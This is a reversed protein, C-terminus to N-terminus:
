RTALDNIRIVAEVGNITLKVLYIGAANQLDTNAYDVLHNGKDLKQNDILTSVKRGLLDYVELKVNSQNDLNFSLKTSGSFPNPAAIFKFMSANASGVGIFSVEITDVNTKVCGNSVNTVTLTVFYQGAATFTHVPSDLASTNSPSSPDGFNWSYTQAAATVAAFKVNLANIGEATISANPEPKNTVVIVDTNSCGNANTVTVTYAGALSVNITKTTAGTSWLYTSGVNGADLTLVDSTCIDKDIGLNVSPLANFSVVITDKAICGFSNSVQVLYTGAVSVSITQTTAGTSWLYNLGPNGADLVVPTGICVTQNAGLNVIPKPNNTIVIADTMDCGAANTVKVTYTGGTSVQITQTTAGTSWLYTSGVNGADLTVLAGDCTTIDTGLNVSPTPYVKLYRSILSDCGTVLNKISATFVLTSDKDGLAATYRLSLGTMTVTGTPNLGGSTKVIANLVNWTVGIDSINFGTPPTLNYTMTDGVCAADPSLATGANFVGQFPTSQAVTAGTPRATPVVTVELRDSACGDTIYPLNLISNTVNNTIPVIQFDSLNNNDSNGGRSVSNTAAVTTINIGPGSWQTGITIPIGSVVIAAGTINTAPWNMFVADVVINNNDLIMAWGSFSPFAGPNWFMNNGWYNDTTGDTRYLIQGANMTAPLNWIIANVSNIVTYSDSIVVKYGATNITGGSLNQIELKDTGGLDLETIKLAGSSSGNAAAVYYKTTGNLPNTILTDNTALLNGGVAADYWRIVPASSSAVLTAGSGKCAAGIAVTPMAPSPSFIRSVRITDNEKIADTALETYVTYAITGTVNSNYYGINVTDRTGPALTKTYLKNLTASALGTLDAKINFNTQSAVGLNSIVIRISDSNIGCPNGSPYIFETLEIENTSPTYEDAGICPVGPRSQGDIDDAVASIAVGKQYLNAGQAHLDTLSIYSPNKNISNLNKATHVQLLAMTSLDGGSPMWGFVAQSSGSVYFNNYNFDTFATDSVSSFIAYAKSTDSANFLNNVISNNRVDMLRSGKGFHIGASTDAVTTARSIAGTLNISNNYIKVGGTEQLTIGVIATSNLNTSGTGTIGGIFNNAITINENPRGTIVEIGRGGFAGGGSSVKEIKNNIIKGNTFNSYVAIGWAQQAAINIINKITNNKIITNSNLEAAIGYLRLQEAVLDSGILNGEIITSDSLFGTEGSVFVGVSGRMITNNLIKNNNNSPGVSYPITAGGIHIPISNGATGALVICNKITNFSAGANSGLSILQIGVSGSTATTNEIRLYKDTGGNSGDITVRDTGNLRILGGVFAGSITRLTDGLPMIKLKYGSGGTEALQNLGNVGDEALNSTIVLTVDGALLNNNIFEFAGGAKTLSTYTKGTGVQYTGSIAAGIRYKNAAGITPFNSNILSVNTPDNALSILSNTNAAGNIDQAVVFYQIEDNVAMATTLKSYDITFSFPSSTNNALVYKWGNDASTNGVYANANTSKKYYLRPRNSASTDVGSADTITAFNTLTYNTTSITNLVPVFTIQPGSYDGRIEYAGIFPTSASRLNGALDHTVGAIPTGAAFLPSTLQPIMIKTGNLQPNSNITNADTGTATRFEGITSRALATAYGFNGGVSNVYVANYDSVVTTTPFPFAYYLGYKLGAGGRTISVANNKIESNATSTALYIGYTTGATAGTYDFSVTNHYIRTNSATAGYIGGMTGNGKFDYIANNVVYNENGATSAATIYIGYATSTNVVNPGFANHIKNDKVMNRTVSSMYVGYFTSTLKNVPRSFDNGIVQLSDPYIDYIGYVYYNSIRNGRIENGVASTPVSITGYVSIGAYGGNITNNIIKNYRFNGQTTYSGAGGSCMIGFYNTSSTSDDVFVKSNKITNYSSTTSIEFGTGYQSTGRGLSNVVFSDLTVYSAGNLRIGARNSTSTSTFQIVSGNGHIVVTDTKTAGKISNIVVQELYPGATPNVNVQVPGCIGNGNLEAALATLSAFNAGVGGVTVNGILGTKLNNIKATDNIANADSNNNPSSTWVKINYNNNAVVTFSGITLLTDTASGVSGIFNIPTQAVNNISWNVTVTSLTSVGYNKIRATVNAIGPCVSTPSVIASVGADDNAPTFEYAGIDPSGSRPAGTIDDVVSPLSIGAGNLGPSNPILVSSSAFSPDFNVSAQDYASSNAGKWDALTVFAAGYYGINKVGAGSASTNVYLNNYNSSITSGATAFYLCYKAGAGGKNISINNNKLDIGTAATTQYIGYGVAATAAPVDLSITNNYVQMGDSSSNYIGYNIGTYNGFNYIVNNVVLAENGVTADNATFYIGATTSANNINATFYDHMKNKSILLKKSNTTLYIGYTTSGLRTTRYIDNGVIQTSDAAANYIGYIYFDSIKNNKFINGDVNKTATTGTLAIGYYGGIITNNEFWNNKANTATITTTNSGSLAIGAYTTATGGLDGTLVCNTVKCYNAEGVCLVIGKVSASGLEMNLSDITVYNTGRIQVVFGTPDNADSTHFVKAGHGNIKITNVASVGLVNQINVKGIYTGTDLNFVVPGCVGYANLDATAAALSPYNRGPATGVTFTGSLSPKIMKTTTDNVPVTDAVNNPLSTWVKINKGASTPFSVSGLNILATSSGAGGSTDLLSTYPITPRLVGDVSWNINVSTIQNAGMNRVTAYINQTSNSCFTIPSDIRSIGADNYSVSQLDFGFDALGGAGATGTSSSWLGYLRRNGPDAVQYVSFGTTYAQESVEVIFNQTPDYIFPTTLSIEVWNGAGTNTITYSPANLCTTLGTTVFPGTTFTTLTSYGMRVMLNTFTFPVASASSTRFYIKTIKGRKNATPFNSPFYLWQVKNSSTSGFPFSNATGTGTKYHPPLQAFVDQTFVSILLIIAIFAPRFIFHLVKKM